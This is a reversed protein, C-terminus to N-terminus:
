GEVISKLENAKRIREQLDDNTINLTNNNVTIPPPAPPAEKGLLSERGDKITSQVLKHDMMPMEEQYEKSKPNFKNLMRNINIYTANQIFALHKTREDVIENHVSVAMPSMTEKAQKLEIAKQILINKGTEKSWGEKTSKKSLQGRSIGTRETIQSLSLGIEFYERAKNWEDQTIKINAM